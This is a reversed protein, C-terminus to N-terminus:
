GAVLFRAYCSGFIELVSDDQRRLIRKDGSGQLWLVQRLGVTNRSM